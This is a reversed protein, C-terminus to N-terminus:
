AAGGAEKRAAGDGVDECFEVRAEQAAHARPRAINDLLELKSAEHAEIKAVSVRSRPREALHMRQLYVGVYARHVAILLPRRPGLLGDRCLYM